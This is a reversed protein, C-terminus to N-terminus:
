VQLFDFCQGSWFELGLGILKVGYFGELLNPKASGLAGFAGVEIPAV